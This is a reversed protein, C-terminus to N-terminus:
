FGFWANLQNEETCKRYIYIYIYGFDWNSHKNNWKLVHIILWFKWLSMNYAYKIDVELCSVTSCYIDLMWVNLVITTNRCEWQISQAISLFIFQCM